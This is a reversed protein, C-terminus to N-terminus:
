PLSSFGAHIIPRSTLRSSFFPATSLLLIPNCAYKGLVNSTSRYSTLLDSVCVPLTQFVLDLFLGTRLLLMTSCHGCKHCDSSIIIANRLVQESEPNRPPDCHYKLLIQLSSYCSSSVFLICCPYSNLVLISYNLSVPSSKSSFAKNMSVSKRVNNHELSM